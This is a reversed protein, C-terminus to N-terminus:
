LNYIICALSQLPSIFIQPVLFTCLTSTYQTHGTFTLADIKSLRVKLLTGDYLLALNTDNLDLKCSRLIPHFRGEDETNQEAYICDRTPVYFNPLNLLSLSLSLSLLRKGTKCLPGVWEGAVCKIKCLRNQSKASTTAFPSPMRVTFKIESLTSYDPAANKRAM